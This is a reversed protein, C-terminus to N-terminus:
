NCNETQGKARPLFPPSRHRPPQPPASSPPRKAGESEREAKDLGHTAAGSSTSLINNAPVCGLPCLSSSALLRQWPGLARGGLQGPRTPGAPWVRKYRGSPRAAGPSAGRGKDRASSHGRGPDSSRGASQPLHKGPAREPDPAQARPPARTM